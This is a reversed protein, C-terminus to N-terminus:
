FMNALSKQFNTQHDFKKLCTKCVGNSVACRNCLKPETEMHHKILVTCERCETIMQESDMLYYNCNGCDAKSKPVQVPTM